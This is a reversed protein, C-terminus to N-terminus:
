AMLTMFPTVGSQQSLAKLSSTLNSSLTLSLDAGAFTQGEPRPKDLPLELVLPAGALHRRWFSAHTALREEDLWNRQWLAYDAYQIKLDPLSAPQRHSYLVGLERLLIAASWGDSVIHHACLLLIHETENLRILTTRFLPGEKFDFHREAEARLLKRAEETSDGTLDITNLSL